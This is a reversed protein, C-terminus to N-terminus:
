PISASPFGDQSNSNTGPQCKSKSAEGALLQEIM